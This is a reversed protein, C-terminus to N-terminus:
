QSVKGCRCDGRRHQQVSYDSVPTRYKAVYEPHLLARAIATGNITKDDLAADLNARDEDSMEDRILAVSCRPGSTRTEGRIVDLLSM